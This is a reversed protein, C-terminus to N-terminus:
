QGLEFAVDIKTVTEVPQGNLLSPQYRWQSVSDLAAKALRPDVSNIVRPNLVAGEKSIIAQLRVVGEIGAQQLEAPYEPRTQQLIRVPTVNGGIRIREPTRTAQPAATPTLRRATVKVREAIQGIELNADLRAVAGNVVDTEVKRVAFGPTAFELTYRGAPIGALRYEGAADATAVEQNTGTQNKATVQCNPIRAGSPDQVIGIITGGATQARLSVVTLPALVAAAALAIACAARGTLPRRDIGRDLVARVRSELTSSDAMAPADSWERRTSAIARVVEVLSSAYEHPALGHRLV